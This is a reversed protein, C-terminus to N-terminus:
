GVKVPASPPVMRGVLQSTVTEEDQEDESEGYVHFYYSALGCGAMLALMIGFWKVTGGNWAAKESVACMTARVAALAAGAGLGLKVYWPMLDLHSQGGVQGWLVFVAIVAIMFQTVYALRLPSM